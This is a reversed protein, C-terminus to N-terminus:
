LVCPQNQMIMINLGADALFLPLSVGYTTWRKLDSIAFEVLHLVAYSWLKDYRAKEASSMGRRCKGSRVVVYVTLLCHVFM